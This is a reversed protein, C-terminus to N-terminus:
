EGRVLEHAVFADSVASKYAKSSITAGTIADVGDVGAYALGSFQREFSPETIRAGVGETESHSLTKVAAILGGADIGVIIVIDGNYGSARSTFVYGAGNLARYAETVSAPAEADGFEAPEFEDAEPLVDRRAATARERAASEIV